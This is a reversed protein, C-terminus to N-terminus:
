LLERELWNEFDQETEGWDIVSTQNGNAVPDYEIVYSGDDYVTLSVAGFRDGRLEKLKKVISNKKM